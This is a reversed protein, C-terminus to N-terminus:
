SLIKIELLFYFWFKAFKKNKASLYQDFIRFELNNGWIQMNNMKKMKFHDENKKM